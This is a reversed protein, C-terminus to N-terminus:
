YFKVKVEKIRIGHKGEDRLLAYVNYVGDGFGTSFVVGVGAHGLKSNLQKSLGERTCCGNYSFKPSEPTPLTKWVGTALLENPTRGEYDALKIGYTAFDKQYQYIKKTVIDQHIRIDVFEEKSWESDIYCPDCLVLQGSDVGIEGIRVWKEKGRRKSM